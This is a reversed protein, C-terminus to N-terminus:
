LSLNSTFPTLQRENKDSGMVVIINALLRQSIARERKEHLREIAAVQQFV